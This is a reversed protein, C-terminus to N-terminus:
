DIRSVVFSGDKEVVALWASDFLLLEVDRMQASALLKLSPDGPFYMSRNDGEGAMKFGKFPSWGGGHSYREAIQEPVPRPDNLLIIEPILGLDAATMGNYFKWELRPTDGEMGTTDIGAAKMEIMTAYQDDACEVTVLTHFAPDNYEQWGRIYENAQEATEFTAASDQGVSDLKSWFGLGFASGLYVGLEPHTIVIGKTM